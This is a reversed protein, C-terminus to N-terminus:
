FNHWTLYYRFIIYFAVYNQENNNFCTCEHRCTSNEILWNATHQCSSSSDCFYSLVFYGSASNNGINITIIIHRVFLNVKFMNLSTMRLDSTEKVTCKIQVAEMTSYKFRVLFHTMRFHYGHSKDLIALSWRCKFSTDFNNNFILWILVLM